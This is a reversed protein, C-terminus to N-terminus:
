FTFSLDAHAIDPTPTMGPRRCKVEEGVRMNLVASRSRPGPWISSGLIRLMAERWM